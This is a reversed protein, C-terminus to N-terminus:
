ILITTKEKISLALEYTAKITAYVITEKDEMKEMQSKLVDIMLQIKFNENM